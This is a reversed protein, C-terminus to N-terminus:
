YQTNTSEKLDETITALDKSLQVRSSKSQNSGNGKWDSNDGNWNDDSEVQGFTGSVVNYVMQLASSDLSDSKKILVEEFQNDENELQQYQQEKNQVKTSKKNVSTENLPIVEFGQENKKVEEFGDGRIIIEEEFGNQSEGDWDCSDKEKLQDISGSLSPHDGSRYSSIDEDLHVLPNEFEELEIQEEIKQYILDKFQTTGQIQQITWVELISVKAQKIPMLEGPEYTKDHNKCQVSLLDQNLFIRFEKALEGGFGIGQKLESNKSNLYTCQSRTFKDNKTKYVKFLPFMQFVCDEKSGNPQADDKWEFNTYAGFTYKRNGEDCQILFLVSSQCEILLHSLLEFNREHVNTSYLLELKNCDKHMFSLYMFAIWEQNIIHSPHQLQPNRFLKQEGLFKNYYYDEVIEELQTMYNDFFKILQLIPVNGNVKQFIADVFAKIPQENLNQKRLMMNVFVQMCRATQLYTIELSAFQKIADKINLNGYLSVILLILSVRNPLRLIENESKGLIFVESIQLMTEYEIGKQENNQLGLLFWYMSQGFTPSEDFMEIFNEEFLLMQKRSEPNTLTQRVFAQHIYMKQPKELNTQMKTRNTVCNGM